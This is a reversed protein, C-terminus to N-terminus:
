RSLSCTFIQSPQGFFELILAFGTAATVPESFVATLPWIFNGQLLPTTVEATIPVADSTSRRMYRQSQISRRKRRAFLHRNCRHSAQHRSRQHQIVPIGIAANPAAAWLVFVPKAPDIFDITGALRLKASGFYVIYEALSSDTLVLSGQFAPKFGGQPKPPATTVSLLPQEVVLPLLVSDVLPVTLHDTITRSQPLNPFSTGFTWPTSADQGQMALTFRNGTSVSEGTLTTSWAFNRYNANGTLVVSLPGLTLTAGTLTLTGAGFAELTLGLDPVTAPTLTIVGDHLANNLDNYIDQLSM